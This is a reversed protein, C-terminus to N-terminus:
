PTYCEHWLPGFKCQTFSIIASGNRSLILTNHPRLLINCVTSLVWVLKEAGMLIWGDEEIVWLADLNLNAWIRVSQDSSGSVIQNGDPLFAVSTVPDTHGQLERLQKGTKADWLRVSQDFSGSVIQNGDSSFAVSTINGTHTLAVATLRSASRFATSAPSGFSILNNHLVVRIV